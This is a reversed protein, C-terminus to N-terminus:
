AIIMINFFTLQNGRNSRSQTERKVHQRSGSLQEYSVKFNGTVPITILSHAINITFHHCSNHVQLVQVSSTIITVALYNEKLIVYQLYSEPLTDPSLFFSIM